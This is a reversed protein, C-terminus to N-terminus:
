MGIKKLGIEQPEFRYRKGCFECKVGVHGDEVM